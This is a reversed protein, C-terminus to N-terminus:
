DSEYQSRMADHDAAEDLVQLMYTGLDGCASALEAESIGQEQASRRCAKTLREGEDLKRAASVHSVHTAIWSHLYDAARRSM